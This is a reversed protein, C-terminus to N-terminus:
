KKKKQKEQLYISTAGGREEVIINITNGKSTQGIITGGNPTNVTYSSKVDKSYFALVSAPKDNTVFYGTVMVGEPSEVKMSGKSKDVQANPYIPVSLEAQAIGASKSTFNISGKSDQVQFSNDGKKEIRVEGSPSKITFNKGDDKKGCGALCIAGVLFLVSLKNILTKKNKM